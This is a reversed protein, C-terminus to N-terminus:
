TFHFGGCIQQSADSAGYRLRNNRLFHIINAYHTQVFGLSQATFDRDDSEGTDVKDSGGATTPYGAFYDDILDVMMCHLCPREENNQEETM